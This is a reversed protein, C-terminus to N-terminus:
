AKKKFYRNFLEEPLKEIVEDSLEDSIVVKGFNAVPHAIGGEPVNEKILEYKDSM